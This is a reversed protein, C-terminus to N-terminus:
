KEQFSTTGRNISHETQNDKDERFLYQGETPQFSMTERDRLAGSFSNNRLQNFVRNSQGQRRSFTEGGGIGAEEEFRRGKKHSTDLVRLKIAGEKLGM